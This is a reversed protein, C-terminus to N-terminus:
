CKIILGGGVIKNDQYFVSAQGIAVGYVPEELFIKAIQNEIKVRCDVAKSRYRIKVKARFDLEDIFMNLRNSEIYEIKLAEREGVEIENREPNIKTVYHPTQALDFRFGRRKGVTYHMYGKHIGVVKGDKLVNGEIDTDIYNKLIDIYSGEVFCIDNSERERAIDRLFDFKSSLRKVDDKLYDGLPFVVTKLIDKPINYLFYSQDKSLDRGEYIFEGDSKIYHGTAIKDIGISNAFKLMEKFKIERNCIACPNPTEGSIYSNVFPEYVEKKFKDSLDLIHYEINLSNAVKKVQEINKCHYNDDRVKHLVMYLGVVDYGRSKLLYASYSSDVGGSLGILVRSM